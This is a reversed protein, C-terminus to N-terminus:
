MNFASLLKDLKADMEALKAHVSGSLRGPGGGPKSQRTGGIASGHAQRQARLDDKYKQVATTIGEKIALVAARDFCYVRQGNMAPANAFQDPVGGDALAQLLVKRGQEGGVHFYEQLERLGIHPKASNLDISPAM